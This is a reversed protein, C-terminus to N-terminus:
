IVSNEGTCQFVGYDKRSIPNFEGDIYIGIYVNKLSEIHIDLCTFHVSRRYSILGFFIENM